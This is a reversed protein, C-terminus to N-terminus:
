RMVSPWRRPDPGHQAATAAFATMDAHRRQVHVEEGPALHQRGPGLLWAARDAELQWDAPDSRRLAAPAGKVYWWFPEPRLGLNVRLPHPNLEWARRGAAAGGFHREWLAREQGLLRLNPAPGLPLKKPVKRRRAM